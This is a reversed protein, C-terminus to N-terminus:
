SSGPRFTVASSSWSVLVAGDVPLDDVADQGGSRKSRGGMVPMSFATSPLDVAM